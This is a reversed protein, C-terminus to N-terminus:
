QAPEEPAPEEPAATIASLLDSLSAFTELESDITAIISSDRCILLSIPGDTGQALIERIPLYPRLQEQRLNLDDNTTLLISAVADADFANPSSM